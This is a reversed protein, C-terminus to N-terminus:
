FFLFPGHTAVFFECLFWFGMSWRGCLGGVVVLVSYVALVRCHESRSRTLILGQILLLLLILRRDPTRLM